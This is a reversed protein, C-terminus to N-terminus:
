RLWIHDLVLYGREVRHSHLTVPRKEQYALRLQALMEQKQPSADVTMIMADVRQIDFGYKSAEEPLFPSQLRVVVLGSENISIGKIYGKSDCYSTHEEGKPYCMASSQVFLYKNACWMLLAGISLMLVSGLVMGIFPPLSNLTTKINKLM